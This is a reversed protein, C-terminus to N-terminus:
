YSVVIKENEKFLNISGRKIQELLVDRNWSTDEIRILDKSKTSDELPWDNILKIAMWPPIQGGAPIHNYEFYLQNWEIARPLVKDLFKTFEEHLISFTVPSNELEIKESEKEILCDRGAGCGGFGYRISIIKIKTNNEDIVFDVVFIAAQSDCYKGMGPKRYKFGVYLGHEEPPYDPQVSGDLVIESDIGKESITQKFTDFVRNLKEKSDVLDKLNVSKHIELIQLPNVSTITSAPM